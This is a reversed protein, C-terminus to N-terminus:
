PGCIGAAAEPQDGGDRKFITRLKEQRFAFIRRLQREVFLFNALAGGPPIYEVRDRMLTSDGQDRLCISMGGDATPAM